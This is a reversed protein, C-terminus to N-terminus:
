LKQFIKQSTDSGNRKYLLNWSTVLSSINLVYLIYLKVTLELPLKLQAVSLTSIQIDINIVIAIGIGTSINLVKTYYM